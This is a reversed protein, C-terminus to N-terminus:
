CSLYKRQERSSGSSRDNLLTLAKVTVRCSDTVAWGVNAIWGGRTLLRVGPLCLDAAGMHCGRAYRPVTSKALDIRFAVRLVLLAQWM